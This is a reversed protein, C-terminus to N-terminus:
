RIIGNGIGPATTAGNSLVPGGLNGIGVTTVAVGPDIVVNVVCDNHLARIVEDVIINIMRENSNEGDAFVDGVPLGAEAQRSLISSVIGIKSIGPRIKAGALILPPPLPAVPEEPIRFANLIMDLIGDFSDFGSTESNEDKKNADLNTSM